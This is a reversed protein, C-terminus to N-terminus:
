TECNDLKFGKWGFISVPSNTIFYIESVIKFNFQIEWEKGRM